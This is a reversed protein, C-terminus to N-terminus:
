KPQPTNARIKNIAIARREPSLECGFYDRGTLVAAAPCSGSGVFFDAVTEGPVTLCRILESYLEIPREVLAERDANDVPRFRFVNSRSRTIMQPNGKICHLAIDYGRTFYRDPRNTHCRGDSRDWILPIEDVIFEAERFVTKAREYWSIGCFWVLWGNEKLVRFLEPAMGLLREYSAESDEYSTLSGSSGTKRDDFAIGFPPDTIIAHFSSAPITKILETSDGLLIKKEVEMFEAPNEKVDFVRSLTGAKQEAWSKMQRVSKAKTWEIEPFLKMMSDLKIADSVDPTRDTGVLKATDSQTWNPNKARKLADIEAIAKVREVPTMDERQVNAELEIERARVLDIGQQFDVWVETGGNMRIAELRHKGDVLERDGDIIVPQLQGFELISNAIDEVKAKVTRFRSRTEQIDSLRLMIRSNM